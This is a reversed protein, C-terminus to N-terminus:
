LSLISKAVGEALSHVNKTRKIKNFLFRFSWSAYDTGLKSLLGCSSVGCLAWARSDGGYCLYAKALKKLVETQRKRARHLGFHFAQRAEPDKGHWAIPELHAVADGRLVINHGSDVRDCNLRSRAPTFIVMPRFFNMGMITDNSYYDLLGIQAGTVDPNQNFLRWASALADDRMLVTDADIKVFLDFDQKM